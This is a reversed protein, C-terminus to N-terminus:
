LTAGFLACLTTMSSPKKAITYPVTQTSGGPSSGAGMGSAIIVALVPSTGNASVPMGTVIPDANRIYVSSELEGAISEATAIALTVPRVPVTVSDRVSRAPLTTAFPDQT